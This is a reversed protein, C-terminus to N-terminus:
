GGAGGSDGHHVSSPRAMLLLHLLALGLELSAISFELVRRDARLLAIRRRVRWM